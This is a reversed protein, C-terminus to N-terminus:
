MCHYHHDINKKNDEEHSALHKIFWSLTFITCIWSLCIFTIWVYRTISVIESIRESYSPLIKLYPSYDFMLRIMIFIEGNAFEQNSM